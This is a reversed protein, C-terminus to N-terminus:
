YELLLESQKQREVDEPYFWMRKRGFEAYLELQDEYHPAKEGSANIFGSQGPPAIEYAVIADPKMVSMNNETGRNQEIPNSVSRDESDQPIGLFNKYGYPRPAVPLRWIDMQDGQEDVLQALTTSLADLAIQEASSGNLLDYAGKGALAEVVAKLGTQLNTGAGTPKGPEPYGTASFFPYIDGLDDKLVAEILNGTFRRFIAPAAGDYFGDEDSDIALQNWNMLLEVAAAINQNTQQNTQQNTISNAQQNVQESTEGNVARALIPLLYKSQLEAYSSTYLLDWADDASFTEKASLAQHLYDVRDATSWSYWFEDPNLVGQGPKNNWNALYGSGPNLVGPNALDTPLRGQWDMSGDGAAPLRNDHGAARNPYGGGFFYGINGDVDAYYMNVNIMSKEAETKWSEFDEAWTAKLWAMLTDLEKGDWARKKAYARHNDNDTHIVPGHVSRKVPHAVSAQDKVAIQETRTELELWEGNYRYQDSNQPNLQEAYIDVIDGAAWTSGWTIRSNHGFMIMPYAFPSNGVIDIGAGHMGVSYVYSPAYWGFQPGNVLIAAADKVKDRGLVYCNSMGSVVPGQFALYGTLSDGSTASSAASLNDPVPVDWHDLPITTPAGETYRPNLLDFLAQGQEDGHQAQLSQLIKLNDLETNFDGYRNAMTGIFIMAIDYADWDKPEFGLDLFQKPMLTKPKARLEALWANMGAAYGEFVEADAPALAAMQDRISQPSFITRANRDFDLYDAGLVEAVQGQTSRRAMEMQFLRDQAVSYGYGYYLGYISDAYIHPVGWEDRVIRVTPDKIEACGTILVTCIFLTLIQNIHRKANM